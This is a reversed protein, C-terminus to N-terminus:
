FEKQLHLLIGKKLSKHSRIVIMHDLCLTKRNFHQFLVKNLNDTSHLIMQLVKEQIIRSTTNIKQCNIFVPVVNLDDKEINEILQKLVYRVVTTKGTGKNGSIIANAPEGHHLVPRIIEVLEKIEKDRGVLEEPMYRSSLVSRDRFIKSAGTGFINTM